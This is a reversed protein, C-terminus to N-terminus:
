CDWPLAVVTRSYGIVDDIKQFKPTPFNLWEPSNEFTLVTNVFINSIIHGPIKNNDKIGHPSKDHTRNLGTKFVYYINTGDPISRYWPPTGLGHGRSVKLDLGPNLSGCLLFISM